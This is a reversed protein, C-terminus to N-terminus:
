EDPLTIVFANGTSRPEYRASGGLAEALMKCYRLDGRAADSAVDSVDASHDLLLPGSDTVSFVTAAKEEDRVARLEVQGGGPTTRLANEILASLVKLMQEPAACMRPLDDAVEARLTVDAQAAAPRHADVTRHVVEGPSLGTCGPAPEGVGEAMAVLGEIMELLVGGRASAQELLDRTAEGVEEASHSEVARLEALLSVLPPRLEQALVTLVADHMTHQQAQEQAHKAVVRLAAVTIVLALGVEVILSITHYAAMPLDMLWTHNIAQWAAFIVFVACVLYTTTRPRM